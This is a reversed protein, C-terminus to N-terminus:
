HNRREGLLGLPTRVRTEVKLTHDLGIERGAASTSFPRQGESETAEGRNEIDHAISAPDFSPPPTCGGKVSVSSCWSRWKTRASPVPPLVRDDDRVVDIPRTQRVLRQEASRLKDSGPGEMFATAHHAVWLRSSRPASGLIDYMKSTIFAAKRDDRGVHRAAYRRGLAAV